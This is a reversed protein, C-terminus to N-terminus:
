TPGWSKRISSYPRRAALMTAATFFATARLYIPYGAPDQDPVRGTDGNNLFKSFSFWIHISKGSGQHGILSLDDERGGHVLELGEGVLSNM